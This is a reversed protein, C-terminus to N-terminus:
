PLKALLTKAELTFTEDGSAVARELLRRAADPDGDAM